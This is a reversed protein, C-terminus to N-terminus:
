VRRYRRSKNKRSKRTKRYKRGGVNQVTDVKEVTSLEQQTLALPCLITENHILTITANTNVGNKTYKISDGAKLRIVRGDNKRLIGEGNYSKEYNKTAM